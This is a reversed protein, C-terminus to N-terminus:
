HICNKGSVQVDVPWLIDSFMDEDGVYEDEGSAEKDDESEDYDDSDQSEAQLLNLTQFSTLELRLMIFM